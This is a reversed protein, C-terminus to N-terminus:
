RVLEVEKWDLDFSLVSVVLDVCAHYRVILSLAFLFLNDVSHLSFVTKGLISLHRHLWVWFLHVQRLIFFLEAPLIDLRSDNLFYVDFVYDLNHVILIALSHLFMAFTQFFLVAHQYLGVVSNHLEVALVCLGDLNECLTEVVYPFEIIM